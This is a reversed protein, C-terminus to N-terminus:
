FFAKLALLNALLQIALANEHDDIGYRYRGRNNLFLVKKGQERSKYKVDYSKETPLPVYNRKKDTQVIRM